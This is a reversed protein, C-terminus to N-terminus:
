LAGAGAGGAEGPGGGAPDCRRGAHAGVDDDTVRDLNEGGHYKKFKKLARIPGGLRRQNLVIRSSIYVFIFFYFCGGEESPNQSVLSFCPTPAGRAAVDCLHTLVSESTCSVSLPPPSRVCRATHKCTSSPRLVPGQWHRRARQRDRRM